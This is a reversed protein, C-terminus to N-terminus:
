RVLTRETVFAEAYKMGMSTGRHIALAEVSKISRSHPYERMEMSYEDLAEIKRNFTNSIDVFHNPIFQNKSSPAVWETSSLIEFCYIEQIIFAVQPRCATIVSQHTLQHDINLDSNHHTYIISPKIKEIVREIPQVIDLLAITDMRNDPLGQFIPSQTNLCKCAAYTSQLRSDLDKKFHKTNRSSVGDALILIHVEDGSDTHRAITGGCGLVEDDPHAAVVLIKKNM